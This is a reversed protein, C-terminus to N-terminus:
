ESNQADGEGPGENISPVIDRTTKLVVNDSNSQPYISDIIFQNNRDGRQM